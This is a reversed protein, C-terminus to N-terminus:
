KEEKALRIRPDIIGYLIDVVLMVAIFMVSYIFAAAIVVNYDNVQIATVFLSGLGPIAFIKEVVLSGTMLSVVLPGLVTIVPIMANRLGHRVILRSDSIGKSKALLIYDSGFVELMESRLFRSVTAVTFMSLAITPMVSSKAANSPNFLIPFLKLKYGLLYALALAFVYSPISVGCVSIISAVSDLWTNHKLSAIIGLVLGIITGLLVAQLGISISVQIRPKLMKSIPMNKQMTYSVGFDGKLMLHIYNAFRVLVPKDLGYKEMVVAKQEETLKEDNFPTGPLLELLLFLLLLIALITFISIILRKIIYKGM